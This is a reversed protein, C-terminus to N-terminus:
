GGIEASSFLMRDDRLYSEQSSSM